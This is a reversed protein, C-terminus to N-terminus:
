AKHTFELGPVIGLLALLPQHSHFSVLLRSWAAGHYCLIYLHALIGKFFFRVFFSSNPLFLLAPQSTNWSMWRWNWMFVRHAQWPMVQMQATWQWRSRQSCGLEPSSHNHLYRATLWTRTCVAPRQNTALSPKGASPFGAWWLNKATAGNSVARWSLSAGKWGAPFGTLLCM